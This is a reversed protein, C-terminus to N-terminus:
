GCTGIPEVYMAAIWGREGHYDVKFWGPTRRLATLTANHPVAGIKAGAPADRLNLSYQTKVMCDSLSRGMPAEATPTLPAAPPVPGPVLAVQGAGDVTACVMGNLGFAPLTAMTRPSVTTDVFRIAGSQAQFCVQTAPTVWGWIDVVKSPMAAILNHHGYGSPTVLRCSTGPSANSILIEPALRQCTTAPSTKPM